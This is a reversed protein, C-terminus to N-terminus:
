NNTHSVLQKILCGVQTILTFHAPIIATYPIPQVVTNIHLRVPNIQLWKAQRTVTAEGHSM